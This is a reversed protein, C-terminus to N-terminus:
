SIAGGAGRWPKAGGKVIEAMHSEHTPELHQVVVFGMGSDAPMAGFFEKLAELGGASAGLGIIPFGSPNPLRNDDVAQKDSDIGSM